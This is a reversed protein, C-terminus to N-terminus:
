PGGRLKSIIGNLWALSTPDLALKAIAAETTCGGIIWPGAPTSAGIQMAISCAAEIDAQYTSLNACAALATVGAIAFTKKM